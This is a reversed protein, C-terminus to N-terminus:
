TYIQSQKDNQRVVEILEAYKSLYWLQLDSLHKM